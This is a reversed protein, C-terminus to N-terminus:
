GPTRPRARRRRRRARPRPRRSSSRRRRSRNRNRRSPSPSRAAVAVARIRSRSRSPTRTGSAASCCKTTGARMPTARIRSWCRAAARRARVRRRAAARAAHRPQLGGHGVASQAQGRAGRARSGGGRSSGRACRRDRSQHARWRSRRAEAAEAYLSEAAAYRGKKFADDGRAWATQAGVRAPVLLLLAVVAAAAARESHLPTVADAKAARRRRRVREAALLLAAVAAFIPFRPVPSERLRQTHGERALGAVAGLLRGLEGGPRNAAFYAGRTRQSLARLLSEDLRSRVAVGNEDRKIDSVHGEADLVPVVDGERTGVGVAFVRVGSRVADDIATRAGQELDEGDTWLVVAQEDHRGPPLVKVALRLAKGLDTGPTSMSSTSLAEVVLRAAPLDLTLPCLRVADGAFAVVAVRSGPLRDIVALAERRAEDIRSPPVDRADMSASVDVLLVVDSGSGARRVMERGWEPGAAGFVLSAYAVVRL